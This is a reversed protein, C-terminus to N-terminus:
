FDRQVRLRASVGSGSKKSFTNAVLAVDQTARTYVVEAGIEFGSVPLWAFQAGVDFQKM